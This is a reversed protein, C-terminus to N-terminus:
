KNLPNATITSGIKVALTFSFDDVDTTGAFHVNFIKKASLIKDLEDWQGNSNDLTFKGGDKIQVNEDTWTATGADSSITLTGNQLVAEKTVNKFTGTLENVKWSKILKLYKSVDANSTPDITASGEFSSQVAKISTSAPVTMNMDVTYNADFNVDLLSKAKDCGTSFMLGSILFTAFLMKMKM